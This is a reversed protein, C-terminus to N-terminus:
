HVEGVQPDEELLLSVAGTLGEVAVAMRAEDLTLVCTYDPSNGDGRVTISTTREADPLLQIQVRRPLVLFRGDSWQWRRAELVPEQLVIRAAEFVLRRPRGSGIAEIRALRHASALQGAAARLRGRTTIDGAHLAVSAVAIALLTAVVALEILTFSRAQTPSRKM